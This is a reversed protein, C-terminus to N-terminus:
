NRTVMVVMPHTNTTTVYSRMYAKTSMKMTKKKRKKKKKEWRKEKTEKLFFFLTSTEKRERKFNHKKSISYSIIESEKAKCENTKNRKPSNKMRCVCVRQIKWPMKKRITLTIKQINFQTKREIFHYIISSPPRLMFCM